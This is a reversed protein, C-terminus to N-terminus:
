TPADAKSSIANANDLKSLIIERIHVSFVVCFFYFTDFDDLVLDFSLTFLPKVSM